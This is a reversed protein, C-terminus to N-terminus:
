VREGDYEYGEERLKERLLELGRNCCMRAADASLGVAHGIQPFSWGSVLRLELVARYGEPMARIIAILANLQSQEEVNEMSPADWNEPFEVTFKKRRQEDIATHKVIIVLWSRFESRSNLFIKKAQPFASIVKMWSSMAADEAEEHRQLFYRATKYATERYAEYMKCFLPQDSEEELVSLYLALM